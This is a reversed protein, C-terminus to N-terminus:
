KGDGSLQKQLKREFGKLTKLIEIVVNKPVKVVEDNNVTNEVKKSIDLDRKYIVEVLGKKSVTCPDYLGPKHKTM